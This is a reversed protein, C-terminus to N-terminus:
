EERQTGETERDQGGTPCSLAMNRERSWMKAKRDPLSTCMWGWLLSGSLTQQMESLMLSCILCDYPPAPRAPTFYLTPLWMCPPLAPLPLSPSACSSFFCHLMNAEVHNLLQQQLRNIFSWLDEPTQQSDWMKRRERERESERYKKRKSSGPVRQIIQTIFQQATNNTLPIFQRGLPFTFSIKSGQTDAGAM